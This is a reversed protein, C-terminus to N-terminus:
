LGVAPVALEGVAAFEALDALHQILVPDLVAEPQGPPGEAQVDRQGVQLGAEALGEGAQLDGLV